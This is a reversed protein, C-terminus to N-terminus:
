GGLRPLRLRRLRSGQEIPVWEGYNGIIPGPGIDKGSSDEIAVLIGNREWAFVVDIYDTAKAKALAAELEKIKDELRMIETNYVVHENM